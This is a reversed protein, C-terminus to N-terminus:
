KLDSEQMTPVAAKRSAQAMTNQLKESLQRKEEEAASLAAQQGGMQSQLRAIEEDKSSLQGQLASIKANLSDIDTQSSRGTACGSIVLVGLLALVSFNIKHRMLQYGGRTKENQVATEFM